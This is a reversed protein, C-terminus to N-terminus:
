NICEVLLLLVRKNIRFNNQVYLTITLIKTVGGDTITIIRGNYFYIKSM